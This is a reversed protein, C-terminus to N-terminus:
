ANRLNMGSEADASKASSDRYKKSLRKPKTQRHFLQLQRQYDEFDFLRVTHKDKGTKEWHRDQGLLSWISYIDRPNLVASLMSSYVRTVDKVFKDQEQGLDAAVASLGTWGMVGALSKALVFVTNAVSPIEPFLGREFFGAEALAGLHGHIVESAQDYLHPFIHIGHSALERRIHGDLFKEHRPNQLWEEYLCPNLSFLVLQQTRSHLTRIVSLADAYCRAECLLDVAKISQVLPKTQTMYVVDLQLRWEHRCHVTALLRHVALAMVGALLFKDRSCSLSPRPTANWYSQLSPGGMAELHRAAALPVEVADAPVGLAVLVESKDPCEGTLYKELRM